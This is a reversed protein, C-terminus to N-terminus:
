TTTIFQMIRMIRGGPGSVAKAGKSSKSSKTSAVSGRRATSHEASTDVMQASTGESGSRLSTDVAAITRHERVKSVSGWGSKNLAKRTADELRENGRFLREKGEKQWKQREKWAEVHSRRITGPRTAMIKSSTHTNGSRRSSHTTDTNTNSSTESM